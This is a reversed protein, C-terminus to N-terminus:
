QESEESESEEVSKQKKWPYLDTHGGAIEDKKMAALKQTLTGTRYVREIKDLATASTCDGKDILREMIDWFGKQQSYVAKM